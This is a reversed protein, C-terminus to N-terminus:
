GGTVPPFIAVECNDSLPTDANAFKQNVAFKINQQQQLLTALPHPPTSLVKQLTAVTAPTQALTLIESSKGATERVSAFYLLNIRM